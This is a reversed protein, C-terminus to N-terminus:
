KTTAPNAHRTFHEGEVVVIAIQLRPFQEIGLKSDADKFLKPSPQAEDPRIFIRSIEEEEEAEIEREREDFEKVADHGVGEAENRVREM